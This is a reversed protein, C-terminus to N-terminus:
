KNRNMFFPITGSAIGVASGLGPAVANGAVHGVNGLINSAIANNFIADQQEKSTLGQLAGAAASRSVMKKFDYDAASGLGRNAQMTKYTLYKGLLSGPISGLVGGLVTAALKADKGKDKGLHNGLLAGATGTAAAGTLGGLGLKIADWNAQAQQEADGGGMAVNRAVPLLHRLSFDVDKKDVAAKKELAKVVGMVLVDSM